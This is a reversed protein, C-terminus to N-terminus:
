DHSDNPLGGIRWSIEERIFINYRNKLYFAVDETDLFNFLEGDMIPDNEVLYSFDNELDDMIDSVDLGLKIYPLIPIRDLISRNYDEQEKWNMKVSMTVNVELFLQRYKSESSRGDEMRGLRFLFHAVITIGNYGM